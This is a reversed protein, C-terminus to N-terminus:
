NAQRKEQRRRKSMEERTLKSYEDLKKTTEQYNYPGTMNMIVATVEKTNTLTKNKM